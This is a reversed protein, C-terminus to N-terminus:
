VTVPVAADVTDVHFTGGNQTEKVAEAAEKKAAEAAAEAAATAAAIEADLKAKEAAETNGHPPTAPDAHDDAMLEALLEQLLPINDALKDLEEAKETALLAISSGLVVIQAKAAEIQANLNAEKAAYRVDANAQQDLAAALRAKIREVIKHM